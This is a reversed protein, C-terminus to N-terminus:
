YRLLMGVTMITATVEVVAGLVDGTVGGLRTIAHRIMLLCGAYGALGAIM